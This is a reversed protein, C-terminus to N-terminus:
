QRVIRVHPGPAGGALTTEVEPLLSVVARVIENYPKQDKVPWRWRGVSFWRRLFPSQYLSCYEPLYHIWIDRAAVHGVPHDLGHAPVRGFNLRFSAKNRKDLQVEIQEIRGEISRRLRGFPFSNRIEENSSDGDDLPLIMFGREVLEPLLLQQLSETLRERDM